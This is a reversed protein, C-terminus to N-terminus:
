NAMPAREGLLWRAVDIYDFVLSISITVLFVLVTVRPIGSLGGLRLWLYVALPTWLLVHPLGLLRVYGVKNFLWQMFVMTGLSVGLVILGDRRSQRFVLLILPTAILAIMMWIIWLRLLAPETAIAEQFTM